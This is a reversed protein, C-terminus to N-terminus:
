RSIEEREMRARTEKGPISSSTRAISKQRLNYMYVTRSLFYLMQSGKALLLGLRSIPSKPTYM